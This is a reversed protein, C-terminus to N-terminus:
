VFVQSASNSKNAPASLLFDLGKYMDSTTSKREGEGESDTESMNISDDDSSQLLSSATANVTVKLSRRKENQGKAGGTPASLPPEAASSSSPPVSPEKVATHWHFWSPEFKNLSSPKSADPKKKKKTDAGADTGAATAAVATKGSEMTRPSMPLKSTKSHPSDSFWENDEGWDDDDFDIGDDKVGLLWDPVLTTLSM